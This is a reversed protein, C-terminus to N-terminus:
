PQRKLIMTEPSGKGHKGTLSYGAKEHARLSPRNEKHVFSLIEPYKKALEALAKSGVGKNRESPTVYVFGTTKGGTMSKGTRAYGVPNGEHHLPFVKRSKEATGLGYWPDKKSEAVLQQLTMGPAKKGLEVLDFPHGRLQKRQAATLESLFPHEEVDKFSRVGKVVIQGLPSELTEGERYKGKEASMRSTFINKGAALRSRLDEIEGKPFDMRSSAKVAEAAIKCLEDLFSGVFIM